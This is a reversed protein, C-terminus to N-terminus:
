SCCNYLAVKVHKCPCGYKSKFVTLVKWQTLSQWPFLVKHDGSGLLTLNKASLLQSIISHPTNQQIQNYKKENRNSGQIGLKWIAFDLFFGDSTLNDEVLNPMDCFNGVVRILLRFSLQLLLM